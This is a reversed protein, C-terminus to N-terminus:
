GAEWLGSRQSSGERVLWEEEGNTLPEEEGGWGRFKFPCLWM